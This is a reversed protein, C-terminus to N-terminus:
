EQRFTSFTHLSSPESHTNQITHSSSIYVAEDLWLRRKRLQWQLMKLQFQRWFPISCPPFQVFVDTAEFQQATDAIAGSLEHYIVTYLALELGYQACLNDYRILKAQTSTSWALPAIPAGLWRVRATPLFRVLIIQAHELQALQCASTLAYPTWADDGLQVLLSSM